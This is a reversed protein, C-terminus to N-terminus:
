LIKQVHMVTAFAEGILYLFLKLLFVLSCFSCILPYIHYFECVVFGFLSYYACLLIDITCFPNSILFQYRIKSMKNKKIIADVIIDKLAYQVFVARDKDVVALFLIVARQVISRVKLWYIVIHKVIM